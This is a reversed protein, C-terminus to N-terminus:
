LDQDPFLAGQRAEDPVPMWPRPAARAGANGWALGEMFIWTRRHIASPGYAHLAMKHRPCPYGKNADFEYGPYHDAEARMLRDRTVKALISAAAISLCTADGKVLRTTSGLGVFDWKGDLVVHDPAVGLGEIARRAARRQAEAMGVEDCEEQSASGVCWATCWGAIRGFLGEREAETLMKSDRVGYVRRDIPLVAAGVMIPGAWAGRGVEDVGVIVDYGRDLLGREVVRSPPKPAKM